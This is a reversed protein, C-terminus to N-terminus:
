NQSGFSIFLELKFLKDMKTILKQWDLYYCLPYFPFITTLVKHQVQIFLKLKKTIV